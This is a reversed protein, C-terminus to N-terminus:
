RAARVIQRVLLDLQAALEKAGQRGGETAARGDCEDVAIVGVGSGTLLLASAGRLAAPPLLREVVKLGSRAACEILRGRVVGPVLGASVPSTWLESGRVLFLNTRTGELLGHEEDWVLTEFATAATGARAADAWRRDAVKHRRASPDGDRPASALVVVVRKPIATVVRSKVEISALLGPAGIFALRVLRPTPTPSPLLKALRPARGSFFAPWSADLRRQHAAIWPASRSTAAGSPACQWITEILGHPISDSPVRKM